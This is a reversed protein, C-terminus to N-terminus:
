AGGGEPVGGRSLLARELERIRYSMQQILGFALSPDEHIRRLLSDRELSYVWVEGVARVTAPRTEGEFIATEGFFEGPGLERLCYEKDGERRLVEVRGEQVVYMSDGPEGQRVIIEGDEYQKGLVGTGVPSMSIGEERRPRSRPRRAAILNVLFSGLLAPHLIRRLISRYSAGGSFVDWLVLSMRRRGGPRQQERSVMRYVARRMRCSKRPIRAITFIIKGIRNDAEIKRCAPAYYRRFAEASVGRLVAAVAAAKATRYAAGIGDKYLRTTACDGISVIRDGFSRPAAGVNIRPSCHCHDQPPKWLPPMCSTVESSNLFSEVLAEDIEKGLLCATVYDSKPIIAAFELRPIDLLFVHMSSGIYRKLISRALFFESAHARTTKPAAPGTEATADEQMFPAANVGTAAVVLDYTERRGSKTEIFRRGESWGLNTVRETVVSAGSGRALGLLYADFSRVNEPRFTRPGGGRHVAAIRKEKLPTEIRVSGVDMHLMYSDIRRQIVEPPLHIGEVALNQVLSEYIVGGCMNCGAPGPKSFDKPEYIDVSLALGIRRATLLAFYSFFSGAPGGGIM